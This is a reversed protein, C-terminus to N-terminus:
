LDRTVLEDDKQRVRRRRSRSSLGDLAPDACGTRFESSDVEAHHPCCLNADHSHRRWIQGSRGIGLQRAAASMSGVEILAHFINLDDWDFRAAEDFM